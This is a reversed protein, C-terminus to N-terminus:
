DSTTFERSNRVARSRWPALRIAAPNLLRRMASRRTIVALVASRWTAFLKAFSLIRDLDSIALQATCRLNVSPRAADRSTAPDDDFVALAGRGRSM